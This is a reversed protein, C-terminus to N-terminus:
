TIVRFKVRFPGAMGEAAYGPMTCQPGLGARNELRNMETTTLGLMITGIETDTGPNGAPSTHIELLVVHEGEEPEIIRV